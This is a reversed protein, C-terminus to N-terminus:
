GYQRRVTDLGLMLGNASTGRQCSFKLTFSLQAHETPFNRTDPAILSLMDEPCTFKVVEIKYYSEIEGRSAGEWSILDQTGTIM